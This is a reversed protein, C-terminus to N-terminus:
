GVLRAAAEEAAHREAPVLGLRVRRDLLDDLTRAGEHLVGFVIEVGLAAIGGALPRLLTPDGSALSMVAPAEVGYRRRLRDPVDLAKLVSAPAAGVLPLAATRSRRGPAIRDVTDQAMRRYTTLKGGVVTLM